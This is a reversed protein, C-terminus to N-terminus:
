NDAILRELDVSKQLTLLALTARADIVRNSRASALSEQRGQYCTEPSSVWGVLVSRSCEPDRWSKLRGRLFSEVCKVVVEPKHNARLFCALGWALMCSIIQEGLRQIPDHIGLEYVSWTNMEKQGGAWLKHLGSLYTMVAHPYPARLLDPDPTALLRLIHEHQELLAPQDNPLLREGLIQSVMITKAARSVEELGSGRLEWQCLFFDVAQAALFAAEDKEQALAAMENMIIRPADHIMGVAGSADGQRGWFLCFERWTNARLLRPEPGVYKRWDGLASVTTMKLM